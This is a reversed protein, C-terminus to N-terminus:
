ADGGEDDSDALSREYEDRSLDRGFWSLFAARCYEYPPPDFIDWTYTPERRKSMDWMREQGGTCTLLLGSRVEGTM